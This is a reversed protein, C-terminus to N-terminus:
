VLLIFPKPTYNYKYFLASFVSIFLSGGWCAKLANCLGCRSGGSWAWRRRRWLTKILRFPCQIQPMILLLKNFVCMLLKVEALAEHIAPVVGVKGVGLAGKGKGFYTQFRFLTNYKNAFNDTVNYQLYLCLVQLEAFTWYIAPAM